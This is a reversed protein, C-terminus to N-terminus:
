EVTVRVRKSGKEVPAAKAAAAKDLRDDIINKFAIILGMGVFAGPPLIAFLFDPYDNFLVIKWDAAVPGFLLDM